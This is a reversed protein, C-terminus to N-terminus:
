PILQVLCASKSPSCHGSSIKCFQGVNKHHNPVGGGGGMVDGEPMAPAGLADHPWQVSKHKYHYAIFFFM